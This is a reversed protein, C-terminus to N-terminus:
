ARRLLVQMQRAWDEHEIEVLARLERLHHANSLAHEVGPITDYSTWRDHVVVGSIATLMDGRSSGIRYFSLAATAAIHLWRLRKVVRFGTEDLHKVPGVHILQYVAEAFDLLRQGTRRSM